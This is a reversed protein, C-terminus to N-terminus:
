LFVNFTVFTGGMYAKFFFLDGVSTLKKAKLNEKGKLLFRFRVRSSMAAM